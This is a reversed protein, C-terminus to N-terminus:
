PIQFISYVPSSIESYLSEFHLFLCLRDTSVFGKKGSLSYAGWVVVGAGPVVAGAKNGEEVPLM